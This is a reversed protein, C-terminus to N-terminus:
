LYSSCNQFTCLNNLKMIILITVQPICPLALKNCLISSRALFNHYVDDCSINLVNFDLWSFIIHPLSFM